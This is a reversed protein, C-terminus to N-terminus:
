WSSWDFTSGVSWQISSPAVGWDMGQIKVQLICYNWPYENFLFISFSFARGFLSKLTFRGGWGEQFNWMSFLLERLIKAQLDGSGRLIELSGGCPPFPNELVVCHTVFTINGSSQEQIARSHSWYIVNKPVSQKFRFFRFCHCYIGQGFTAPCWLSLWIVLVVHRM